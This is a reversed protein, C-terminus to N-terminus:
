HAQFCTITRLDCEQKLTINHSDNSIHYDYTIPWMNNRLSKSIQSDNNHQLRM